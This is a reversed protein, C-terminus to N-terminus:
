IKQLVFYYKVGKKSNKRRKMEYNVFPPFVISSIWYNWNIVFDRMFGAPVIELWLASGSVESSYRHTLTFLIKRLILNFGSIYGRYYVLKFNYEEAKKKMKQPTWWHPRDDLAKEKLKLSEKKLGFLDLFFRQIIYKLNHYEEGYANFVFYGNKKLIKHAIPFALDFNQMNFIGNNSYVTNFTNPGFSTDEFLEHRTEKYINKLKAKDLYEGIPDSAAAIKKGESIEKKWLTQAWRGQSSAADLAPEKIFGKSKINLAVGMDICKMFAINPTITTWKLVEKQYQKVRPLPLLKFILAFFTGFLLWIGGFLTAKFYYFLYWLFMYIIHFFRSFFNLKKLKLVNRVFEARPRMEDRLYYSTSRKKVYVFEKKSSINIASLIQMQISRLFQPGYYVKNFKIHKILKFFGNWSKSNLIILKKQNVLDNLEKFENLDFLDGNISNIYFVTNAKNYKDFLIKFISERIYPGDKSFILIKNMKM